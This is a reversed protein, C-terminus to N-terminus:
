MYGLRKFSATVLMDLNLPLAHQCRDMPPVDFFRSGHKIVMLLENTKIKKREEKCTILGFSHFM